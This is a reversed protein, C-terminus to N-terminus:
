AKAPKQQRASMWDACAAAILTAVVPTVWGMGLAAGPLRDLWDPVLATWQLAKAADFLGFLLAVLMVPIYVRSPQSWRHM